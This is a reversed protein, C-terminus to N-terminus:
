NNKENKSKLKKFSSIDNKMDKISKVYGNDLFKLGRIKINEKQRLFLSIYEKHLIYDKNKAERIIEAFYGWGGNDIKLNFDKSNNLAYNYFDAELDSTDSTKLLVKKVKKVTKKKKKAM